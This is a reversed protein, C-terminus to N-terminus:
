VGIGHVALPLGIQEEEYTFHSELQARLHHVQVSLRDLADTEHPDTEHTDDPGTALAVLSADLLELLEHVVVHEDDLQDVVAYLGDPDAARLAPYLYADEIRHHAEVAQCMQGCFSGLQQYAQQLGVRHLASRADHIAARGAVVQDVVEVLQALGQRYMGHIQRLHDGQVQQAPTAAAYAGGAADAHRFPRAAEDIRPLSPDGTV